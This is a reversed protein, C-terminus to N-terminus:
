LYRWRPTITLKTVNGTFLITNDGPNLEPFNGTYVGMQAQGNKLVWGTDSDVSMGSEVGTLSITKGGASITIDGSGTILIKPRSTVDGPNTVTTGSETVEIDAETEVKEKLPECYFQVEASWWDSNRGSKKFTVANIVRAKQKLDAQGGFIVYNEGQLWREAARAASETYVILPVSQIYSNFINDGETMTLEGSRGPITVHTIREEPRVIEPMSQMRIGMDRCSVGGWKFWYIM